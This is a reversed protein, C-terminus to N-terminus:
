LTHLQFQAVYTLDLEFDNMLNWLSQIHLRFFHKKGQNDIPDNSETVVEQGYGTLDWTPPKPPFAAILVNLLQIKIKLM